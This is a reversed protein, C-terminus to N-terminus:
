APYQQLITKELQGSAYMKILAEIDTHRVGHVYVAPITNSGSFEELGEKLEPSQFVDVYVANLHHRGELAIVPQVAKESFGCRPRLKEGKMFVVIKNENILKEVAERSM